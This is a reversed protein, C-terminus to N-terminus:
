LDSPSDPSVEIGPPKVQEQNEALTDFDDFGNISVGMAQCASTLAAQFGELDQGYGCQEAAAGLGYKVNAKACDILIVGELPKSSAM